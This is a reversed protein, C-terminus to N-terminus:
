VAMNVTSEVDAEPNIDSEQPPSPLHQWCFQKHWLFLGQMLCPSEAM